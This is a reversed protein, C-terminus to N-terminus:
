YGYQRRKRCLFFVTVCASLLEAAVTSLWIGDIGLKQLYDLRSLIGKLDGVGSGTTDQFSKPYIQYFVASQWWGWRTKDLLIQEM